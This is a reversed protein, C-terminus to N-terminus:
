SVAGLSACSSASERATSASGSCSPTCSIARSASRTATPKALTNQLQSVVSPARMPIMLTDVGGGFSLARHDSPGAGGRRGPSGLPADADSVGLAQLDAFLSM